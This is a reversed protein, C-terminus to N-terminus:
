RSLRDVRLLEETGDKLEIDNFGLLFRILTAFAVCNPSPPEMKVAFRSRPFFTALRDLHPM